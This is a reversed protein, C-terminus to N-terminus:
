MMLAINSDTSIEIRVISQVNSCEKAYMFENLSYTHTQQKLQSDHLAYLIVYVRHWALLKSTLNIIGFSKCKLARFSFGVAAATAVTAGVM